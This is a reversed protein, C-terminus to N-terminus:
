RSDPALIFQQQRYCLQSVVVIFVIFHVNRRVLRVTTVKQQFEEGKVRRKGCEETGILDRPRGKHTVLSRSIIMWNNTQANRWFQGNPM